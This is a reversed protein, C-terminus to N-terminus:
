SRAKRLSTVRKSKPLSIPSILSRPNQAVKPLTVAFQGPLKSGTSEHLRSIFLSLTRVARPRTALAFPKIRLGTFSTNIREAFARGLSEAASIAHRDEEEDPRVGYGDEFDIRFDEVPEFELKMRTRDFVKNLMDDSGSFALAKALEAPTPAYTRLSSLAINGLKQPTDHKFLHAGGYVVHVPSRQSINM